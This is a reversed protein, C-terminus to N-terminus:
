VSRETALFYELGEQKLRAVTARVPEKFIDFGQRQWTEVLATPISAVRVYESQPKERSMARDDALEQLFEDTILQTRQIAVDDGAFVLDATNDILNM